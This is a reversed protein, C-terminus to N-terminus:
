YSDDYLRGKPIPWKCLLNLPVDDQGGWLLVEYERLQEDTFGNHWDRYIICEPEDDIEIFGPCKMHPCAFNTELGHGKAHQCLYCPIISRREM